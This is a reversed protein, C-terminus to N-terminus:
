RACGDTRAQQHVTLVTLSSTLMLHFAALRAADDAHVDVLGRRHTSVSFGVLSVTLVAPSFILATPFVSLVAPPVSLVALPVTLLVSLVALLALSFTLVAPSSMFVTPSVALLSLSDTLMLHFLKRVQLLM